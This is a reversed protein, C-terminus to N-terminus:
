GLEDELVVRNRGEAKARYLARDSRRLIDESSEGARWIAVGVSVTVNISTAEVVVRLAEVDGRIREAIVLAGAETTEPLLVAFEEGGLRGCLDDRRLMTRLLRGVSRLVADGAAHGWTDNVAKFHDVDVMAMALSRGHRTARATEAEARGMWAHRQHCGTLADITAMSELRRQLAKNATLDLDLAVLERQGGPAEVIAYHSLVEIIRGDRHRVAVEVQASGAEGSVIEELFVHMRDRGPGEPLLDFGSKGLVEMASYGYLRESARNWFLVRGSLDYVQVPPAQEGEFLGLFRADRYREADAVRQHILTMHLLELAILLGHRDVRAGDKGVFFFGDRQAGSRPSLRVCWYFGDQYPTWASDGAGFGDQCTGSAAAVCALMRARQRDGVSPAWWTAEVESWSPGGDLGGKQEARLVIGEVEAQRGLVELGLELAHEDPSTRGVLLAQVLEGVLRRSASEERASRLSTEWAAREREHRDRLVDREAEAASLRARASGLRWQLLVVVVLLVAAGWAEAGLASGESGIVVM